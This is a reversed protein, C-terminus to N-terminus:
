KVIGLTTKEFYLILAITRCVYFPLCLKMGPDKWARLLGEQVQVSLVYEIECGQHNWHNENKYYGATLVTCITSDVM